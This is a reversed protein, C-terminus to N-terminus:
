PTAIRTVTIPSLTSPTAAASISISVRGSPGECDQTHDGISLTVTEGKRVVIFPADSATAPWPCSASRKSAAATGFVMSGLHVAPPPGSNVPIELRVNAYSTDTLVLESNPALELEGEALHPRSAVAGPEAGASPARDLAVGVTNELLLPAVAQTYPGRVGHRFGHLTTNCDGPAGDACQELWLSLGADAPVPPFEKSPGAGIAFSTTDFQGTWPDFLRLTRAAPPGELLWPRGGEHAILAPEIFARFHPDKAPGDCTPRGAGCCTVSADRDIWFIENTLCGLGNACPTCSASGDAPLACGGVALVAGGPM